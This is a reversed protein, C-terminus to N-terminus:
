PRGGPGPPSASRCRICRAAQRRPARGDARGPRACGAGAPRGPRDPGPRGRCPPPPRRRRRHWPPGRRHVVPRHDPTAPPCRGGCGCGTTARGRHPRAAPPRAAARWRPPRGHSVFGQTRRGQGLQEVRRRLMPAHEAPQAAVRGIGVEEVLRQLTERQLGRGLAGVPATHRQRQDEIRGLRGQARHLHRPQGMQRQAPGVRPREPQEVGLERQQAEAPRPLVGPPQPQDHGGAVPRALRNLLAQIQGPGDVDIGGLQGGGVIAVEGRAAGVHLGGPPQQIEQLAQEVQAQEVGAARATVALRHRRPVAQGGPNGAAHRHGARPRTEDVVAPAREEVLQHRQQPGLRAVPGAVVQRQARAKELRRRIGTGVLHGRHERGDDCSEAPRPQQRGRRHDVHEDVRQGALPYGARDPRDTLGAPRYPRRRGHLRDEAAVGPAAKM